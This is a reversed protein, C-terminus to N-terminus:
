VKGEEMLSKVTAENKELWKLLDSKKGFIQGERVYDIVKSGVAGLILGAGGLQISYFISSKKVKKSRHMMWVELLKGQIIQNNRMMYVKEGLKYKSNLSFRSM